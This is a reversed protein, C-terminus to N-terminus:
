FQNYFEKYRKISNELDSNNKIEQDSLLRVEGLIECNPFGINSRVEKELKSFDTHYAFYKMANLKLDRIEDEWEKSFEGIEIKNLISKQLAVIDKGLGLFKM